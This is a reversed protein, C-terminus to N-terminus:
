PFTCCRILPLEETQCRWINLRKRLSLQLLETLSIFNSFKDVLQCDRGWLYDWYWHIQVVRAIESSTKIIQTRGPKTREPSSESPSCLFSQLGRGLLWLQQCVKSCSPFCFDVHCTLKTDECLINWVGGGGMFMWWTFGRFTGVSRPRRSRYWCATSSSAPALECYEYSWVVINKKM